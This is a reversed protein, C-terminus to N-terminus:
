VDIPDRMHLEQSQNHLAQSRAAEKAFLQGIGGRAGLSTFVVLGALVFVGVRPLWVAAFVHADGQKVRCSMTYRFDAEWRRYAWAVPMNINERSSLPNGIGPETKCTIEIPATQPTM